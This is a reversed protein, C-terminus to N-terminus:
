RGYVIGTNSEETRQRIARDFVNRKEEFEESVVSMPTDYLVAINPRFITVKALL